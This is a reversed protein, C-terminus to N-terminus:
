SNSSKKATVNVRPPSVYVRFFKIVRMVDLNM